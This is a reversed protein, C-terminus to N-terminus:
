IQAACQNGAALPSGCYAAAQPALDPPKDVSHRDLGRRALAEFGPRCAAELAGQESSPLNRWSSRVPRITSAARSIWDEDVFEPDIFRIMKRLCPAADDLIDEFHITLVRDPSLEGLAAVGRMIEGSWYHAFLQPPADMRMFTGADFHEPLLCYLQEPLDEVGARNETEFPDYGLIGTMLTAAMMMRFGTHRSMSIACDRGDRLIHIFRAKPFSGALRPVARLSGGSREVWVKKGFRRKLWEFVQEYQRIARAPRFTMVFKELEDFLADHDEALHPLTTLLIAPVGTQRSFRSEPALPYLMEDMEIGHRLMLTSKPHCGGLISWVQRADMCTEPFAQPIRSGLDSATVLFESVSLVDAHDNLMNSLMTSGCRGTGVIFVPELKRM